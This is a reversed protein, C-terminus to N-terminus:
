EQTIDSQPYLNCLGNLVGRSFSESQGKRFKELITVNSPDRFSEVLSPYSGGSTQLHNSWLSRMLNYLHCKSSCDYRPDLGCMIDFEHEIETDTEQHSEFETM